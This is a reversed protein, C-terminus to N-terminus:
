ATRGHGGFLVMLLGLLASAIGGVIYWTTAHTFRGTFTNTVQDALSHSASIGISLLVVGVVLLVVGVIRQINMNSERDPNM